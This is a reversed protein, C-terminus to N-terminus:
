QDPDLGRLGADFATDQDGLNRPQRRAPAAWTRGEADVLRPGPRGVDRARYLRALRDERAAIEAKERAIEAEINNDIVPAMVARVFVWGFYAALADELRHGCSKVDLLRQVDRRDQRIRFALEAVSCKQVKLYDEVWAAVRQGRHEPITTETRYSGM